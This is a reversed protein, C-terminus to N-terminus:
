LRSEKSASIVIANLRAPSIATPEASITAAAHPLSSAISSDSFRSRADTAPLPTASAGLGWDDCSTIEGTSAAGADAGAAPLVFTAGLAGDRVGTRTALVAGTRSCDAGTGTGVTSRRVTAEGAAAVSGGGKGGM